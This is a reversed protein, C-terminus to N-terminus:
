EAAAEEHQRTLDDRLTARLLARLIRSERDIAALRERLQDPTLERAAETLQRITDM